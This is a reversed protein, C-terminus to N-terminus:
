QWVKVTSKWSVSAEMCNSWSWRNWLISYSKFLKSTLQLLCCDRNRPCQENILTSCFIGILTQSHQCWWSRNLLPFSIFYGLGSGVIVALFIWTNYSMVCLMLMYGLTVQVVHLLAQTVRLTWSFLLSVFTKREAPDSCTQEGAPDLKPSVSVEKQRGCCSPASGGSDLLARVPQQGTGHLQRKPWSSSPQAGLVGPGARVQDGAVGAVSEVAQLFGDTAHGGACVAADRLFYVCVCPSRKCTWATSSQTRIKSRWYSANAHEVSADTKTSLNTLNTMSRYIVVTWVSCASHKFLQRTCFLNATDLEM